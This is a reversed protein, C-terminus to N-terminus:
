LVTVVCKENRIVSKSLWTFQQLYKKKTQRNTKEWFVTDVLCHSIDVATLSGQVHEKQVRMGTVLFWPITLLSHTITYVVEEEEYCCNVIIYLM